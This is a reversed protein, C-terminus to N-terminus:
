KLQGPFEDDKVYEDSAELNDEDKMSVNSNPVTSPSVYRPRVYKFYQARVNDETYLRYPIGVQPADRMMNRSIEPWLQISANLLGGPLTFHINMRLLDHEVGSWPPDLFANAALIDDPIRAGSPDVFRPRIHRFYHKRLCDDDYMRFPLWLHLAAETMKEGIENWIMLGTKYLGGPLTHHIFKRLVDSERESWPRESVEGPRYLGQIKPATNAFYHRRCEDALYYKPGIRAKALRLVIREWLLPTEGSYLGCPFAELIQRQLLQTEAETWPQGFELKLFGSDAM